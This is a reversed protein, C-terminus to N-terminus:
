PRAASRRCKPCLGSIAFHTFDPLFGTQEVIRRQLSETDAAAMSQKAGCSECIFHVHDGHAAHHYEPGSGLHTHALIGLDELLELTRYVTSDNVGPLRDKVRQAVSQPAIHGSIRMIEGVIARRQPTMRYGQDKLARLAYEEGKSVSVM